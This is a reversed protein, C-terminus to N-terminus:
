KRKASRGIMDWVVLLVCCLVAALLFGVVVTMKIGTESNSGFLRYAVYFGCGAAVFLILSPAYSNMDPM